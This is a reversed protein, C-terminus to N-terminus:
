CCGGIAGEPAKQGGVTAWDRALAFADQLPLAITIAEPIEKAWREYDTCSPFANLYPCLTTQVSAEGARAAGFSVVAEEPSAEVDQRTVRATVYGGMPSKSRVEVPELGLVAPLMLADMFCHTHLMRGGATVQHRTIKEIILDEKRPKGTKKAFM